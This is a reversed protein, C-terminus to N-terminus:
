MGIPRNWLRILKNLENLDNLDNNSWRKSLWRKLQQVDETAQQQELMGVENEFNILINKHSSNIKEGIKEAGKKNMATAVNNCIQKFRGDKLVKESKNLYVAAKTNDGVMYYAIGLKLDANNILTKTYQNRFIPTDIFKSALEIVKNANAINNESLELMQFSHYLPKLRILNMQGGKGVYM